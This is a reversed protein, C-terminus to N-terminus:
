QYFLLVSLLLPALLFQMWTIIFDGNFDGGGGYCVFISFQLLGDCCRVVIIAIIISIM